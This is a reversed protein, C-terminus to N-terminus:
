KRSAEQEGCGGVFAWRLAYYYMVEYSNHEVTVQRRGGGMWKGSKYDKDAPILSKM